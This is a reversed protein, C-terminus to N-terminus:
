AAPRVPTVSMEERPRVTRRSAAASIKSLSARGAYGASRSWHAFSGAYAQAYDYGLIRLVVASACGPRRRPLLEGGAKDSYHGAGGATAPSRRSVEADEHGISCNRGNSTSRVPSVGRGLLRDGFGAETGRFEGPSRTDWFVFDDREQGAKAQELSCYVGEVPRAVYTTRRCSWISRAPGRRAVQRCWWRPHPRGCTRLVPLDMGGDGHAPKSHRLRGGHPRQRHGPARHRAFEEPSAMDDNAARPISSGFGDLHVAGAIHGSAYDQESRADVVRIRPDELREALWDTEALLEPRAYGRQAVPTSTWRGRRVGWHPCALMLRAGPAEECFRADEPHPAQCQPCMM